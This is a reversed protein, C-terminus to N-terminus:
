SKKNKEEIWKSMFKTSQFQHQNLLNGIFNFQRHIILDKELKLIRQEFEETFRNVHYKAVIEFGIHQKQNWFAEDEYLNVALSSFATFDDTVNGNWHDDESIGESGITTTVSCTGTQMAELLKGKQGAGFRLPALMVRSNGIVEQANEARGHILFGEKENHLQLVKQSPYAGYINLKAHPLQKKIQPWIVKKLQMVADWNPEHIFNGIFIFDKKDEFSLLNDQPIPEYFMPLYHLLAEDIKFLQQLLNMEFESIMLTLDCRYISAIERKAIESLLLDELQFNNSKKVSNQRELRLCHLDETDLVRVADPCNETVRWGFQEESIYRDFLVIDPNLEKVFVDFDSSNLAISKKHIEKSALDFSFESEQAASAFTIEFHQALFLDILQLIRTGAASSTPEPWVLGIVLLQKKKM